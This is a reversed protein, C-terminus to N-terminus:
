RTGAERKLYWAMWAGGIAIGIAVGFLLIGLMHNLDLCAQKSM